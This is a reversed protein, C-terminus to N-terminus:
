FFFDTPHNRRNCTPGLTQAYPDYLQLKSVPHTVSASLRLIKEIKARTRESRCQSPEFEISSARHSRATGNSRRTLSAPPPNEDQMRFRFGKTPWSRHADSAGNRVWSTRIMMPRNQLRIEPGPHGHGGCLIELPRLDNYFHWGRCPGLISAM